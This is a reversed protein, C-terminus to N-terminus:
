SSDGSKCIVGDNTISFPIANSHEIKNQLRGHSDIYQDSQQKTPLTSRAVFQHERRRGGGEERSGHCSLPELIIRNTVMKNWTDCNSLLLNNNIHHNHHNSASSMTSSHAHSSAANIYSSAAAAAATNTLRRITRTAVIVINHCSQLRKLQRLFENRGSLGVNISEYMKDTGDFASIISDMLLFIPPTNPLIQKSSTTKRTANSLDHKDRGLSSGEKKNDEHMDLIQNICELTAVYGNAVNTPRVIHIHDLADLVQQDFLKTDMISGNMDNDNCDGDPEHTSNSNDGSHHNMQESGSNNSKNDITRKIVLQHYCHRFTETTNWKRLLASAIYNHLQQIHIAHEPDFVIVHFPPPPPSSKSASSFESTFDLSTCHSVAAIAYNTALTSLIQTKGTASKGIIEIVANKSNKNNNNSDYNKMDTSTEHPSNNSHQLSVLIQDIFKLGTGQIFCSKLLEMEIKFTEIDQLLFCDHDDNVYRQRKKRRRHLRRCYNHWKKLKLKLINMENVGRYFFLNSNMRNMNDNTVHFCQSLSAANNDDDHGKGGDHNSNCSGDTSSSRPRDHHSFSTTSTPLPSAAILTPFYIPNRIEYQNQIRKLWGLATEDDGGAPQRMNQQQQKQQQM